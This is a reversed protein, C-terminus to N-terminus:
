VKAEMEFSISVKHLLDLSLKFAENRSIDCKKRYKREMRFIKSVPSYIPCLVHSAYQYVEHRYPFEFNKSKLRDTILNGMRESPWMVDEHASILLIPGNINEVKITNSENMETDLLRDYEDIFGIERDKLFNSFFRPTYNGFSIFPLAKGRWSWSSAAAPRKKATLGEFVCCSASVAIVANIQKILSASLLAYEAGKSIGYIATKIFGRGRLWSVAHEIIEVPVESLDKSTESTNFYAIAISPIGSESFRKAIQSAYELRGDSGTLVILALNSESGSEYFCGHFGNEKVSTKTM